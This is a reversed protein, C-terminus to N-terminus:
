YKDVIQFEPHNRRLCDHVMCGILNGSKLDLTEFVSHKEFLEAFEFEFIDKVAPMRTSPGNFVIFSIDEKKIIKSIFLDALAFKIGSIEESIKSELQTRSVSIGSEKDGDEIEPKEAENEEENEEDDSSSEDNETIKSYNESSNSDSGSDAVFVKKTKLQPLFYLDTILIKSSESLLEFSQKMSNFFPWFHSFFFEKKASNQSFSSPIIRKSHLEKVKEMSNNYKPKLKWSKESSNSIVKQEYFNKVKSFYNEQFVLDMLKFLMDLTGIKCSKESVLEISVVQHNQNLFINQNDQPNAKKESLTELKVIGFSSFGAGINVVLSYSCGPSIVQSIDSNSFNSVLKQHILFNSEFRDYLFCLISSISESIFNIKLNEYKEPSSTFNKSFAASISQSIKKEAQKIAIKKKQFKLLFKLFKQSFFILLSSNSPITIMRINSHEAFFRQVGLESFNVERQYQETIAYQQEADLTEGEQKKPKFDPINRVILNRVLQSFFDNM